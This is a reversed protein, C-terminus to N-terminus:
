PYTRATLLDVGYAMAQLMEWESRPRDLERATFLHRQAEKRRKGLNYSYCYLKSQEPYVALRLVLHWDTAEVPPMWLHM